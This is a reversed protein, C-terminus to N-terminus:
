TELDKSMANKQWSVSKNREGQLEGARNKMWIIKRQGGLEELSLQVKKLANQGLRLDFIYRCVPEEQGESFM